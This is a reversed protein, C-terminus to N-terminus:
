DYKELHAVGGSEEQWEAEEGKQPTSIGRFGAEYLHDKYTEAAQQEGHVIFTHRIQAVDQTQLYATMERWDGHGSFGDIRRIDARVKHEEGFISIVPTHGSTVPSQNKRFPAPNDGLGFLDLLRAGLSTPTCYGVILITTRPDEIHNAVHHKVRGAELMGSASIIIAPKPDTNLRKSERIDTIYHLTNFGFPDPDNKMVQQVETNLQETYQRFIDTANVSLPSDVYVDVAPLFGANYLKNLVYVIEQTRGVSFSPIILKGQKRVCTDRVIELLENETVEAEDHLRNGYTSECILWDCQPFPKPPCLIHSHPRGIDGTYALRKTEGFETITLSAIASGLMHGSDTFRLMVGECLFYDREYEVTKFLRMCRQAQQADYLVDAPPLGLKHQKRNYWKIDLAQIYATDLLMISCLDKTAPTCVVKGRFGKRYLYPILGSHDIHAHTLVIYDINSPEFGLERNARDTDMGKGQYMGCDLLIRKRGVTLLHKSGTVEGAAGLFQLKM